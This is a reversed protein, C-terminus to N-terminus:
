SGPGALVAEAAALGRDFAEEFLPLGSLDSHAFQVRGVPEAARRRAAGWIFGPVPRIMAHGWRWVDIRQVAGDLGEHARELDTLIADCISPHDLAALKGRAQRPDADCLPHYHTWITPGSDRLAQHTAVVYGLAPSDYIVNDWAVPFGRSHPTTRLHLNSVIWPAYGFDQLHDPPHDRWPRLLKAALFRPVALIAHRAVIRVLSAGRVDWASIEVQDSAPVVDTVLHGVAIQAGSKEALHRILRGNGEPWTLFPASDLGPEPVRAAFYFLMAWASTTEIRTGYDDRCAYDVYWRLLPSDFGRDDLWTAASFRDLSTVEAADSCQRLPLTFARRGSADRWGVWGSIERQFRSLQDLDRPDALARPFLGEYWRGACHIREEPVRVLQQEVGRPSAESGPEIMGAEALLEVLPANEARPLPLYHAGWPYPVVGDTGYAATGGVVDEVDLVLCDRKGGRALRWAAALGSAGAGVIAVDVHRTFATAQEVTADRLRHGVAM